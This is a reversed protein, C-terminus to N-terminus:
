NMEIKAYKYGAYAYEGFVFFAGVKLINESRLDTGQRYFLRAHDDGATFM